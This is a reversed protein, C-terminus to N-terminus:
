NDTKLEEALKTSEEAKEENRAEEKSKPPRPSEGQPHGYYIIM